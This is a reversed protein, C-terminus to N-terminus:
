EDVPRPNNSSVYINPDLRQNTASNIVEFHLHVGTSCGSTGMMAIIQGQRVEEGEEVNITGTKLHAYRTTTGNSHEILVFNGYSEIYGGKCVKNDLSYNVKNDVIDVVVGNTAAIIYHEGYDSIDIGGHYSEKEGDGDLDRYGYNSSITTSTPDGIAIKKEDYLTIESGGVPWWYNEESITEVYTINSNSGNSVGNDDNFFFFMFLPITLVVFLLLFLVIGAIIGIIILKNKLPMTKIKKSIAKKAADTIASQEEKRDRLDQNRAFDDNM